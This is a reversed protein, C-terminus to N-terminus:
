YLFPWSPDGFLRRLLLVSHFSSTSSSLCSASLKPGALAVDLCSRFVFLMAASVCMSAARCLPLRTLLIASVALWAGPAAYIYETLPRYDQSFVRGSKVLQPLTLRTKAILETQMTSNLPFVALLLLM